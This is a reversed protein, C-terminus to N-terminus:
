PLQRALRLGVYPYRSEPTLNDRNSVRSANEVFYWSGGRDGRHRGSAPGEPDPGARVAYYGPDFWDNVWEAVNGSLDYLGCGNPLLGAVARARGESNGAHWAVESAVESGAYRLDTGCRAAHEWEAETPLRYGECAYISGKSAAECRVEAGKGSCTFCAPLGEQESLAVSYAAAEHWSVETVPLDAGVEESPNYGMLAEFQAQTVETESLEFARTLVVVGPPEEDFWCEEGQGGTCGQAVSGAAVGVMRPRFASPTTPTSTEGTESGTSGTGTEGTQGSGTEGTDEPVVVTRGTESVPPRSVGSDVSAGQDKGGRGGRSDVCGVLVLLLLGRWVRM